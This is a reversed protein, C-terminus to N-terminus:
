ESMWTNMRLYEDTGPGTQPALAVDTSFFLCFGRHTRLKSEQCAFGKFEVMLSYEEQDM